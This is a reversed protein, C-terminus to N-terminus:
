DPIFTFEPFGYFEYKVNTTTNPFTATAVSSYCANYVLVSGKTFPMFETGGTKYTYAYKKNTGASQSNVSVVYKKNVTLALADIADLTLKDPSSQEITKQRLLQKSDFDWVIVRYTGPEPMKTGLQTIKGAVSVSFVIGLEWPGSTRVGSQITTESTIFSTIPNEAPKTADSKKCTSLGAICLLCILSICIAKM